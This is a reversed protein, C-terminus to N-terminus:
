GGSKQLPSHQKKPTCVENKFTHQALEKVTWSAALPCTETIPGLVDMTIIPCLAPSNSAKQSPTIGHPSMKM